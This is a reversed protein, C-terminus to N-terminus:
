RVQPMDVGGAVVGLVRDDGPVDREREAVGM